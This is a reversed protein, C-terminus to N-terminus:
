AAVAGKQLIIKANTWAKSIGIFSAGHLRGLEHRLPENLFGTNEEANRSLYGRAEAENLLRAIHSRSVGFSKSLGAVSIHVPGRPPYSDGEQASQCIKHLIIVGANREAFLQIPNPQEHRILEKIGEGVATVYANFFTPDNLLDALEALRPNLLAYCLAEEIMVERFASVMPPTPVYPKTRRNSTEPNPAIFGIMRMHLLMARARGLSSIGLEKCLQQMGTLTLEGTADLALAFYGYCVRFFDKSIHAMLPTRGYRTLSKSVSLRGAEEFRPHSHVANMWRLYYEDRSEGPRKLFELEAMAGIGGFISLPAPAVAQPIRFHGEVSSRYCIGIIQSVWAGCPGEQIVNYNM